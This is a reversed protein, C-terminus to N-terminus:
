WLRAARVLALLVVISLLLLLGIQQARSPPPLPSV